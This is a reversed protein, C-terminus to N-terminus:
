KVIRIGVNGYRKVIRLTEWEDEHPIPNGDDDIAECVIWGNEEDAAICRRHKVGNFYVDVKAHIPDYGDRM